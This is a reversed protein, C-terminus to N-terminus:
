LPYTKQVERIIGGRVEKYDLRATEQMTMDEHHHEDSKVLADGYFFALLGQGENEEKCGLSVESEEM